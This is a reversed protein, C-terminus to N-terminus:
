KVDGKASGSTGVVVRGTLAGLIDDVKTEIASIQAQQRPARFIARAAAALLHFGVVAAILTQTDIHM